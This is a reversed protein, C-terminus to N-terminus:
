KVGIPTFCLKQLRVECSWAVGWWYPWFGTQFGRKGLSLDATFSSGRSADPCGGERKFPYDRPQTGHTEPGRWPAADRGAHPQFAGHREPEARSQVRARNLGFLNTGGCSWRLRINLRVGM